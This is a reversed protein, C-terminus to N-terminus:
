AVPTGPAEARQVHTPNAPITSRLSDLADALSERTVSSPDREEITQGEADYTDTTIGLRITATYEKDGDVLFQMLRTAQGLCIPLVGTAAPDLTGGHGVHRQSCLRKVQRVVEMSTIGAAKDIIFLGDVPGTM